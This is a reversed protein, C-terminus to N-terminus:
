RDLVYDECAWSYIQDEMWKGNEDGDFYGDEVNEMGDDDEDEDLNQHHVGLLNDIVQRVIDAANLAEVQGPAQEQPHALVENNNQNDQVNEIEPSDEMADEYDSGDESM